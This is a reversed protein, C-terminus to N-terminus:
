VRIEFVKWSHFRGISLDEGIQSEMRVYITRKMFGVPIFVQM